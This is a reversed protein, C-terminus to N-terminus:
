AFVYEDNFATTAHIRCAAALDALLSQFSHRCATTLM